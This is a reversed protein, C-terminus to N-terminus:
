LSAKRKETVKEKARKCARVYNEWLTNHRRKKYDEKYDKYSTGDETGNEFDQMSCWIHFLGNEFFKDPPGLPEKGDRYLARLWLSPPTVKRGKGFLGLDEGVGLLEEQQEKTIGAIRREVESMTNDLSEEIVVSLWSNPTKTEEPM